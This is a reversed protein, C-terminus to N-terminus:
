NISLAYGQKPYTRISVNDAGLDSLTKRLKCVTHTVGKVGTYYNGDWVKEILETRSVVRRSNTVMHFLVENLKNRLYVTEDDSALCQNTADYVLEGLKVQGFNQSAIAPNYM